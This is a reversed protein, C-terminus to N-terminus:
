VVAEREAPTDTQLHRAAILTSRLSVNVAYKGNRWLLGFIKLRPTM